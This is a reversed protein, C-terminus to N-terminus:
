DKQNKGFAEFLLARAMRHINSTFEQIDTSHFNTFWSMIMGSYLSSISQALIPLPISSERDSNIGRLKIEITATLQLNIHSMLYDLDSGLKYTLLFPSRGLSRSEKLFLIIEPPPEPAYWSELTTLGSFLHEFMDRHIEVLVQAKSQYHNYFTSRGVNAKRTIEDVTIDPYNKGQLLEDLSTKIASRTRNTIRKGRNM